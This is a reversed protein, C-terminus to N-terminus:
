PGSTSSERSAPAWGTVRTYFKLLAPVQAEWSNRELVGQADYAEVYRERNALVTRTAEVFSGVDGAGFVEGNGLEATMEAQLKVDSVVIPLRAQMFEFYKSCLALEHNPTHLLPIVGVNATRVYDGIRHPAVYPLMHVRGRVGLEDAQQELAVVYRHRSAVQVAFHVGELEKLASVVTALGRAPAVAGVYVLLEDKAGLGCDSRVDSVEGDDKLQPPHREAALTVVLPSEVLGYQERLLEALPEIVTLVGDALGIHKSEEVLMALRWTADPRDVGAIYEHADYVLKVARGAEEARRKVRVALGLAEVAHAHIVDPRLDDLVEDFMDFEVLHKRRWGEAPMRGPLKMVNARGLASIDPRGTESRAILWADWGADALSRAMKQARGDWVPDVMVIVTRPPKV